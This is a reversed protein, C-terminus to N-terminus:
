RTVPPPVRQAGTGHQFRNALGSGMPGTIANKREPRSLVVEAWGPHHVVAVPVGSQPVQTM